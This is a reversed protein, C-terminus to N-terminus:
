VWARREEDTWSFMKALIQLQGRTFEDPNRLCQYYKGRSVGIRKAVQEPTMRKLRAGHKIMEALKYDEEIKDHTWGRAM